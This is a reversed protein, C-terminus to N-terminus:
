MAQSQHQGAGSVRFRDRPEFVFKRGRSQRYESKQLHGPAIEDRGRSPELRENRWAVACLRMKHLNQLQLRGRPAPRACFDPRQAVNSITRDCLHHLSLVYEAALGATSTGARGQVSSGRPSRTATRRVRVLRRHQRSGAANSSQRRWCRAAPRGLWDAATKSGPTQKLFAAIMALNIIGIPVNIYFVWRWGLHDTIVGTPGMIPGLLIGIGWIAM